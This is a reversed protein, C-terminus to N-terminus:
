RSAKAGLPSAPRPQWRGPALLATSGVGELPAFTEIWGQVLAELGKEMRLQGYPGYSSEAAEPAAGIGTREPQVM